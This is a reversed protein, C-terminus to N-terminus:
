TVPSSRSTSFRRGGSGLHRSYTGVHGASFRAKFTRCLPSGKAEPEEAGLSTHERNVTLIPLTTPVSTGWERRLEELLQLNEVPELRLEPPLSQCVRKRGQAWYAGGGMKEWACLNVNM